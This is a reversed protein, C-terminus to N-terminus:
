IGREKQIKEYAQHVQQFKEQAGKILAPDKSQLKDPHYKKAMSRYAKKVEADTVSPTIELIRYANGTSKVFMAKISELDVSRIGLAAAIQKIKSLESQSISGDANSVGMLFHIIQLRTEYRSQYTFVQALDEINQTDKKVQENFTEFISAAKKEGYNTIFFNRVLQLEQAKAQGEAKIVIAAFAILNIQFQAPDARQTFTQFNYGSGNDVKELVSGIFFGFIAGPFRFLYYGFFAAIWKVMSCNLLSICIQCIFDTCCFMDM